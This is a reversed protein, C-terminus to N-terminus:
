RNARRAILRGADGLADDVSKGRLLVQDLATSVVEDAFADQRHVTPAAIRQAADVWLRRAPQGGLFPLPEDFFPARQAARLAPFADHTRFAALQRERDLCMLQIFSWALAQREAPLRRPIAYFVGGYSAGSGEPFPLARWLGGTQPAVWGSLQGVMWAGGLETTLHGRRLAEAWDNSWTGVRADLGARRARLALDFARRFRPTGLLVRSRSDFYLGEGPQLGSRILMDKLAQVHALLRAGTRQRIRQGAELYSDWTRTLAEPEVGARALLDHRVLMTGPGIDAPAGIVRGDPTTAQAYAFPTFAERRAEIGFPAARLDQLGSGRAFRGLQSAEVAMVDPLQAATTLATAMATHHDRYPRSQLSLVVGPQVAQWAPLAARTIEDLLPFLAVTLPAGAQARSALTLGPALGPALGSALLWARRTLGLRSRPAATRRPATPTSPTM